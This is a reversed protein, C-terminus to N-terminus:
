KFLAKIRKIHCNKYVNQAIHQTCYRHVDEGASEQWGFDPREFIARIGLHQYSIVTIKGPGVVEKRLWQMFWSWNAVSEKGAVIAFIHPLLQQEADYGCTMFLKGAYRGSLFGADITLVPRLYPWVAICPGFVWAVHDFIEVGFKISPV